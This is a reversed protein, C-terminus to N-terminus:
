NAFSIEWIKREPGKILHRYEQAVVSIQHTVSNSERPTQGQATLAYRQQINKNRISRLNYSPVGMYVRQPQVTNVRLSSSPVGPPITHPGLPSRHIKHWFNSPRVGEEDEIVNPQPTPNYEPRGPHPTQPISAATHYSQKYPPYKTSKGDDAAKTFIKSLTEITVLQSEGINSFPAQPASNQLAYDLERAAIIANEASSKYPLPTNHPLFEVCDLDREGRTKTIYVRHCCYHNMSPGM